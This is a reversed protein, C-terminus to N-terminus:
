VTDLSFFYCGYNGGSVYVRKNRVPEHTEVDCVEIRASAKHRQQGGSLYVYSLACEAGVLHTEGRFPREVQESGGIDGVAPCVFVEPQVSPEFVIRKRGCLYVAGCATAVVYFSM